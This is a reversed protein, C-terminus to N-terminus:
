ATRRDVETPQHSIASPQDSDLGLRQVVEAGLLRYAEAGRSNPDYEFISMGHSPAEALRISRPILANFMRRPNLRHVDKVVDIALRTRSDFMTMVLGLIRLDPNLRQQVLEITNFIEALGELALYESQVPIVVADAATLGNLTLLGMSPPCDIVTVDYRQQVSELARDLRHHPRTLDNLEKEAGALEKNAALLDLEPRVMRLASSEVSVDNLLVDYTSAQLSRKEVGLSSTANGQPDLDILLTRLGESALYCALNIATTTKGVGGKQNALAIM